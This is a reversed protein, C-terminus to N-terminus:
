VPRETDLDASTQCDVIGPTASNLASGFQMRICASMCVRSEINDCSRLVPLRFKIM